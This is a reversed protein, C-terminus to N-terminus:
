SFLCITGAWLADVTANPGPGGLVGTVGDLTFVPGLSSDQVELGPAAANLETRTLGIHVGKLTAYGPKGDVALNWGVLKGDQFVVILSDDWEAFALPGAPCEANASRIPEAGRLGTIFAVVETESDGFSLKRPTGGGGPNPFAFGDGELLAETPAYPASAGPAGAEAKAPAEAAPPASEQSCAALLLSFGAFLAPAVALRVM